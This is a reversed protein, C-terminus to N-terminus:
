LKAGMKVNQKLGNNTSFSYNVGENFYSGTTEQKYNENKYNVSGGPESFPIFWLEVSGKFGNFSYRALEEKAMTKLAEKDTVNYKYFTMTSGGEIGEVVKIEEGSEKKGVVTVQLPNADAYQYSTQNKFINRGYIANIKGKTNMQKGGAFLEKGDFYCTLGMTEKLKALAGAANGKYKFVDIKANVINLSLSLGGSNPLLLSCLEKVTIDKKDILVPNKRLLYVADEVTIKVSDSPDINTIYGEFIVHILHEKYGAEIKITDGTKIRDDVMIKERGKEGTLMGRLPLEVKGTASLNNVNKEIEFSKCGKFKLNGITINIVPTLM